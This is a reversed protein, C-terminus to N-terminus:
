GGTPAPPKVDKQPAHIWVIRYGRIYADHTVQTMKVYDANDDFGSMGKQATQGSTACGALALTLAYCILALSM